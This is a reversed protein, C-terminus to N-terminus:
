RWRRRPPDDLGHQRMKRYLRHRDIGLLRAAENKQGRTAELATSILHREAAALSMMESGCAGPSRGAATRRIAEPLHRIEIPAGGSVVSAHEMANALERINGPWEYGILADLVPRDLKTCDAEGPEALQQLFHEALAPIDPRRRRLPQVDIRIVNLRYYLDRRFAGQEVMAELDQHTAAIFRVDVPVPDVAGVPIVIREQICRLLKAQLPLGLDGIEDLFVTGGEAARVFGITSREAGTFSGRTHGFLQSEFLSDHLTTCDVPVFPHDCRRGVAHIQRAVLEKGTGSEGRVVVASDRRSVATIM